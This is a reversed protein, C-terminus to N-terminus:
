TITSIPAARGHLGVRAGDGSERQEGPRDARQHAPAPDGAPEGLLVRDALRTARHHRGGREGHPEGEDGEDRHERVPGLGRDVLGDTAGEGAVQDDLVGLGAVFLPDGRRDGDLSLCTGPTALTVGIAKM